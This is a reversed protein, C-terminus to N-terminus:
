RKRVKLPLTPIARQVAFISLRCFVVRSVFFTWMFVPLTYGLSSLVAPILFSALSSPVRVANSLDFRHAAELVGRLSLLLLTVPILAGLVRFVQVAEPKMADPIRFVENAMVPAALAFLVGGLIGFALQSLVSGVVLHSVEDDGTALKEAVHKTTARGLGLDFLGSYELLALTLGLLGFRAAGLNSTIIPLAIVGVILPVSLGGFNLIANRAISQRGGM